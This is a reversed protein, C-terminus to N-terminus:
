FCRLWCYYKREFISHVYYHSCLWLYYVTKLITNKHPARAFPQFEQFARSLSLSLLAVVVFARVNKKKEWSTWLIVRENNIQRTHIKMEENKKQMGYWRRKISFSHLFFFSAVRRFHFRFRAGFNIDFLFYIFYLIFLSFFHSIFM